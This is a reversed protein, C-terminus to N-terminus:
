ERAVESETLMSDTAYLVLEFVRAEFQTGGKVKHIGPGMCLSRRILHISSWPDGMQWSVHGPGIPKEQGAFLVYDCLPEAHSCDGSTLM